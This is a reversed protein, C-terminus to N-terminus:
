NSSSDFSCFADAKIAELNNIMKDLNLLLSKDAMTLVSLDHSESQAYTTRLLSSINKADLYLSNESSLLHRTFISTIKQLKAKTLERTTEDKYDETCGLCIPILKNCFIYAYPTTTITPPTISVLTWLEKSSSSRLTNELIKTLPQMRDIMQVIELDLNLNQNSNDTEEILTTVVKNISPTNKLLNARYNRVANTLNKMFRNIESEDVNEFPIYQNKMQISASMSKPYDAWYAQFLWTRFEDPLEGTECEEFLVSHLTLNDKDNVRKLLIPIEVRRVYKNEDHVLDPTLLIIAVDCENAWRKCVEDPIGGIDMQDHVAECPFQRCFAEAFQKLLTKKPSSYPFFVKIKKDVM